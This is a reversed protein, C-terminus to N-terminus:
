VLKVIHTTGDDGFPSTPSVDTWNFYTTNPGSYYLGSTPSTVTTGDVQLSYSGTLNGTVVVTFEYESPSVEYVAFYHYCQIVPSYGDKVTGSISGFNPPTGEPSANNFGTWEKVYYETGKGGGFTDNSSGTTVTAGSSYFTTWASGNWVKGATAAVWSSGNWVKLGTPSVWSSGNWVKM